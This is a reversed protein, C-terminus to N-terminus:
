SLYDEHRLHHIRRLLRDRRLRKLMVDDRLGRLNVEAAGTRVGRAERSRKASENNKRRRAWYVGDKRDEPVRIAPRRVARPGLACPSIDFLSPPWRALRDSRQTTVAELGGPRQHANPPNLRGPDSRFQYGSPDPLLHGESDYGGDDCAATSYYNPVGQGLLPSINSGQNSASYMYSSPITPANCASAFCEVVQYTNFTHHDSQRGNGAMSRDYGVMPSPKQMQVTSFM